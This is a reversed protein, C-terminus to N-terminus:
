LSGAKRKVASPLHISQKRAFGLCPDPNPCVTKIQVLHFLRFFTYLCPSQSSVTLVIFSDIGRPNRKLIKVSVTLLDHFCSTNDM